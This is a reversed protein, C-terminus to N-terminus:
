PLLEDLALYILKIIDDNWRPRNKVTLTKTYNSLVKFAEKILISRLEYCPKVGHIWVTRNTQCRHSSTWLHRDDIISKNEDFMLEYLTEAFFVPHNLFDSADYITIDLDKFHEYDNNYDTEKYYEVSDMWEFYEKENVGNPNANHCDKCLVVINSLVDKGGLSLPVVHCRDLCTFSLDWNNKCNCRHSWGQAPKTEKEFRKLNHDQINCKYLESAPLGPRHCAFCRPYGIEIGQINFPTNKQNLWYEVIKSKAYHKRKRKKRVTSIKKVDNM